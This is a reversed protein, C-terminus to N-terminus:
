LFSLQEPHPELLQFCGKVEQVDFMDVIDTHTNERVQICLRGKTVTSEVLRFVPVGSATIRASLASLLSGVQLEDIYDRLWCGLAFLGKIDSDRASNILDNMPNM